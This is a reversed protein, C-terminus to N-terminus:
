KTVGDDGLLRQSIALAILHARSTAGTKVKMNAVHTQVTSKNICLREAIEEDSEGTIILRLLEKERKSLEL